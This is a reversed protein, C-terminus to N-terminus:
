DNTFLSVLKEIKHHGAVLVFPGQSDKGMQVLTINAAMRSSRKIKGSLHLERVGTYALEQANTVDIGFGAMVSIGWWEM